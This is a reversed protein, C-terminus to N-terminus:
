MSAVTVDTLDAGAETGLTWGNGVDQRLNRLRRLTDPDLPKM